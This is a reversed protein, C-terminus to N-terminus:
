HEGSRVVVSSLGAYKEIVLVVGDEHQPRAPGVWYGGRRPRRRTPHSLDLAGAAEDLLDPV